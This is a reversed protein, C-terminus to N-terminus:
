AGGLRTFAKPRLVNFDMVLCGIIRDIGQHLLTHPDIEIELDQWLTLASEMWNGLYAETLESATGPIQSTVEVPVGVVTGDPGMIPKRTQAGLRKLTRMENPFYWSALWKLNNTPINREGILAFANVVQEYAETSDWTISNIGTTNKVGLPQNNSGTGFLISTDMAKSFGIAIDNRTFMETDTDSLLRLTRSLKVMVKLYKPNFAINSFTLVTEDVSNPADVAYATGDTLGTSVADSNVQIRENTADYAAGVTYSNDGVTIPNGIELRALKAKDDDSLAHFALYKVSSVTILATLTTTGTLADVATQTTAEDFQMEGFSIPDERFWKPAVRTTQGPINVPAGEVNLVPVNQLALTNEVLVEILTRLEEDVLYGGATNTGWVMTREGRAARAMTQNNRPPIGRVLQDTLIHGSKPMYRAYRHNLIESPIIIGQTDRNDRECIQKSLDREFGAKVGSPNYLSLIARNVSYQNVQRETLGLEKTAIKNWRDRIM